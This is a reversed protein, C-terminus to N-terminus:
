RSQSELLTPNLPHVTGTPPRAELDAFRGTRTSRRPGPPQALRSSAHNVLRGVRVHQRLSARAPAAFDRLWRGVDFRYGRHMNVTHGLVDGNLEITAVTDIGDFALEVREGVRPVEAQFTTSYRWDVRHLWTLAAENRDLYPDPIRDAAMLDLHTSGPVQAPVDRDALFQPV